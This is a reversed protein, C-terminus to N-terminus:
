LFDNIREAPKILKKTNLKMDRLLMNSSKSYESIPIKISKGSQIISKTNKEKTKMVCFHM